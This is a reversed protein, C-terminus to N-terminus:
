RQNKDNLIQMRVKRFMNVHDKLFDKLRDVEHEHENLMDENYDTSFMLTFANRQEQGYYCQDWLARLEQRSKEVFESLHAM